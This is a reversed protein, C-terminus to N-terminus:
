KHYDIIINLMRRIPEAAGWLLQDGVTFLTLYEPGIKLKRLRGVAIDLTGSISAPTLYKLTDEKNNEVYKIWQHGSKILDVIHELSLNKDTLKITLAQSHCRLSGIRVCLGDIPIIKSGSLGLIKNGEAGAKWEERTQGDAVQCDIWPIVNGVLPADFHKMPLVNSNLIRSVEKDVDLINAQPEVLYDSIGDSLIKTQNLLELMTNAGGGSAAQYTMTSVWQVVEQKLLGAIAMIMLSVTCNGDIYNKIGNSLAKDILQRNVPDLIIVSDNNMRLASSADLWYGSFGKDRLKPLVNNTYESGSATLICDLDCLKNLDYADLLKANSSIKPADGGMDSTSFFIPNIKAFDNESLMRQMLVSGVMGRWGIFGVKLM